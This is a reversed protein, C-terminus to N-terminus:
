YGSTLTFSGNNNIHASGQIVLNVQGMLKNNIGVIAISAMIILIALDIPNIFNNM